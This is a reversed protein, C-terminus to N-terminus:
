ANLAARDMGERYISFAGARRLLWTQFKSQMFLHWSAMIFFSSRSARALVGLLMPDCPRSHNPALLIGHGSKLSGVLREVGVCEVRTLGFLKELYRPM